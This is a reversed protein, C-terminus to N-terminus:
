EEKLKEPVNIICEPLSLMKIILLNMECIMELMKKDRVDPEIKQYETRTKEEFKM